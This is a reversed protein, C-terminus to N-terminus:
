AAQLRPRFLVYRGALALIILLGGALTPATPQEGVFLVVWVPNLLPEVLALLSGEVSSVRQLGFSFLVYPAAIQICGMAALLLAVPLLSWEGLLARPVLTLEAPRTVLLAVGSLLAVGANNIATVAIPDAYRMRRIWLLFFGFMVGSGAGMLLPGQEGGHFNGFFLVAIGVMALAMAGADERHFSEGFFLPGLVLAYLPATYQLFIANAASTGQTAAVYLALLLTYSLVAFVSDGARPLKRGRALPALCLAAFLSRYFTIGLASSHWGAHQTLLKIFVGGLSWLVGALVLALRYRLLTPPSPANSM